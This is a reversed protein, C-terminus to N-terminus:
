LKPFTLQILISSISVLMGDLLPLHSERFHVRAVSQFGEVQQYLFTRLKRAMQQASSDHQMPQSVFDTALRQGNRDPSGLQVHPGDWTAPADPEIEEDARVAADIRARIRMIAEREQYMNLM